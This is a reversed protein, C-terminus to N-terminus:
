MKCSQMAIDIHDVEELSVSGVHFDGVLAVLVDEEHSSLVVVEFSYGVQELMALSFDREIWIGDVDLAVGGEMDWGAATVVGDHGIEETQGVLIDVSIWGVMFPLSRKHHCDVAIVFFDDLPHQHFSDITVYSVLLFLFGNVNSPGYTIRLQDTNQVIVVWRPLFYFYGAIDFNYVLDLFWCSDILEYKQQHEM